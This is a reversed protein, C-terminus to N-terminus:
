ARRWCCRSWRRCSWPGCATAAFPWPSPSRPMSSTAPWAPWASPATTGTASSCRSVWSRPGGARRRLSWPPGVRVTSRASTPGSSCSAPSSRYPLSRRQGPLFRGATQHLCAFSGPDHRLLQKVVALSGARIAECLASFGDADSPSAEAGRRLLACVARSAGARCALSLASCGGALALGLPLGAAGIRAVALPANGLAAGVLAGSQQQPTHASAHAELLRCLDEAEAGAALAAADRGDPTRAQLAGSAGWLAFAVEPQGAAAAALLPTFHQNDRCDIDVSRMHRALLNVLEVSGARAALHLPTKGDGDVQTVELTGTELLVRATELEAAAAALHLATRGSEDRAAPDAGAALLAVTLETLGNMAASHLARHRGARGGRNPDAGRRLLALASAEQRAAAAVALSTDGAGDLRDVLVGADADADALADIVTVEGEEAAGHLATRGRGDTAAVTAGAALLDKVTEAHGTRSAVILPTEGALNRAEEARDVMESWGCSAAIHAFTNGRADRASAVQAARARLWAAVMPTPSDHALLFAVPWLSSQGEVRVVVQQAPHLVELAGLITAEDRSVLASLLKAEADKLAGPGEALLVNALPARNDGTVAALGSLEEPPAGLELLRAVGRLMHRDLAARLLRARAGPRGLSTLAQPPSLLELLLSEHGAEAAAWLPDNRGEGDLRAGAELLMRAASLHGQRAAAALPSLQDDADLHVPAGARLLVALADLHGQGAAERVSSTSPVPADPIALITEIVQTHGRGAAQELLRGFLPARLLPVGNDFLWRVMAADGATVAVEAPSRGDGLRARPITGTHLVVVAVTASDGSEIAAQLACPGDEEGVVDLPVKRRLLMRLCASQGHAAALRALPRAPSRGVEAGIDPEEGAGSSLEDAVIETLGHRVATELRGGLRQWDTGPWNRCEFLFVVTQRANTVATEFPTRGRGDAYTLAETALWGSDVFRELNLSDGRRCLLHAIGTQGVTPQPRWRADHGAAVYRGYLAVLVDALGRSAALDFLTGDALIEPGEAAGVLVRAIEAKGSRIAAVLPPDCAPPGLDLRAGSAVLRRVVELHGCRVAEVLATAGAKNRLDAFPTGCPAAPSPRDLLAAAVEAQGARAALHLATRGAKCTQAVAFGRELLAIVVEVLGTEAALHLATRGDELALTGNDGSDLLHLAVDSTGQHCASLLPTMGHSTVATLDSGAATLARIVGMEGARVAVHLASTGDRAALRVQAACRRDGLLAGVLDADGTGAALHLPCLGAANVALPDAGLSLLRNVLAEAGPVCALHLLSTGDEAVPHALESAAVSTPMAAWAEELAETSGQMVSLRLQTRAEAEQASADGQTTLLWLYEDDTEVPLDVVPLKFCAFSGGQHGVIKLTEPEDLALSRTVAGVLAAGGALPRGDQYALDLGCGGVFDARAEQGDEIPAGGRPFLVTQPVTAEIRHVRLNAESVSLPANAAHQAERIAASLASLNAGQQDLVLRNRAETEGLAQRQQRGWQNLRNEEAQRLGECELEHQALQREIDADFRRCAESYSPTSNPMYDGTKPRMVWAQNEFARRADDVQRDCAALAERVQQQLGAIRETVSRQIAQNREHSAAEERRLRGLDAEDRGAALASQVVSAVLLGVADVAFAQRAVPDRPLLSVGDLGRELCAHLGDVLKQAVQASLEAGLGRQVREATPARDAQRAEAVLRVILAELASKDTATLTELVEYLDVEKRPRTVRRLPLPPMLDPFFVKEARPQRPLLPVKAMLKLTPLYHSFFHIVGLMNFYERCLPLKPMQECIDEAMAAYVEQLRAFRPLETGHDRRHREREAELEPPADITYEVRFGTGIQFATGRRIVPNDAIIRFTSRYHIGPEGDGDFGRAQMVEHLSVYRFDNGLYERSYTRLDILQDLSNGTDAAGGARWGDLFAPTFVGGSLYGKMMYDLMGMVRGVLTDQYEPPMVPYMTGDQNFHLSFMPQRGHFFINATLERIIQRLHADSFPARGGQTPLLFLHECEVLDAMSDMLGEILGAQLGVGGIEGRATGVQPLPRGPNSSNYTKVLGTAQAKETFGERRVAQEAKVAKSTALTGLNFQDLFSGIRYRYTRAEESIFACLQAPTANSNGELWDALRSLHEHSFQRHQPPSVWSIFYPAHINISMGRKFLLSEVAQAISHHAHRGAGVEGGGFFATLERRYTHKTASSTKAREWDDPFTFLRKTDPDRAAGDLMPGILVRDQHHILVWNSLRRNARDRRLCQELRHDCVSDPRYINFIKDRSFWKRGRTDDVSAAVSGDDGIWLTCREHRRHNYFSFLDRRM